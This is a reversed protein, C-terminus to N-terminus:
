LSKALAAIEPIQSLAAKASSIATEDLGADALKAEAATGGAQLAATVSGLVAYAADELPVLTPAAVETVGEVVPKSAEIKPLAAVVKQFATAFLHGVNKFTIM